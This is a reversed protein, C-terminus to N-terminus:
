NDADLKQLAELRTQPNMRSYRHLADNPDNSAERQGRRQASRSRTMIFSSYNEEIETKEFRTSKRMKYEVSVNMTRREYSNKFRIDHEEPSFQGLDCAFSSEAGM